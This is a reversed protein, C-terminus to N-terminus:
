KSIRYLIFLHLRFAHSRLSLHADEEHYRVQVNLLLVLDKILPQDLPLVIKAVMKLLHTPVCVNGTNYVKTVLAQVNLGIRGFLTAV